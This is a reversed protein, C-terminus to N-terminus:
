SPQGRALGGIGISTSIGGLEGAGGTFGDGFIRGTARIFLSSSRTAMRGVLEDMPDVSNAPEAGAGEGEGADAKQV